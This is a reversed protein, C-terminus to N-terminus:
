FNNINNCDQRKQEVILSLAYRLAWGVGILKHDLKIM